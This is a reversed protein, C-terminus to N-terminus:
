YHFLQLWYFNGEMKVLAWDVIIFITAFDYLSLVMDRLVQTVVEKSGIRHTFVTLSALLIVLPPFVIKFVILNM